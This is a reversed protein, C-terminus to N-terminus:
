ADFPEGQCYPCWEEPHRLLWRALRGNSENLSGGHPQCLLLYRGGDAPDIGQAESDCLIVQTGTSRATTHAIYGAATTPDDVPMDAIPPHSTIGAAFARASESVHVVM